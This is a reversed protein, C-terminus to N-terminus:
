AEADKGEAELGAFFEADREVVVGVALEVRAFELGGCRNWLVLVDGDGVIREMGLLVAAIVVGCGVRCCGAGREDGKADSAKGHMSRAAKAGLWHILAVTDVTLTVEVNVGEVMTWGTLTITDSPSM